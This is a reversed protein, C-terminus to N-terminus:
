IEVHNSKSGSVNRSKRSVPGRVRFVIVLLCMGAQALYSLTGGGERTVRSITFKKIKPGCINM